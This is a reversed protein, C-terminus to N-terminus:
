QVEFCNFGENSCVYIVYKKMHYGPYQAMIDKSYKEIQEVEDPLPEELDM